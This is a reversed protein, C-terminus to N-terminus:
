PICIWRALYPPSMGHHRTMTYLDVTGPITSEGHRRPPTATHCHPLVVKFWGSCPPMSPAAHALLTATPHCMTYDHFGLYGGEMIIKRYLLYCDYHELTTRHNPGKTSRDKLAGPTDVPQANATWRNFGSWLARGSAARGQRSSM